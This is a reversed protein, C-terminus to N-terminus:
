RYAAMSDITYIFDWKEVYAIFFTVGFLSLPLVCNDPQNSWYTNEMEKMMARLVDANIRCGQIVAGRELLEDRAHKFETILPKMPNACSGLLELLRM